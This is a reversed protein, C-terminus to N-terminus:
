ASYLVCHLNTTVAELLHCSLVTDYICDNSVVVGRFVLRMYITLNKVGIVSLIKKKLKKMTM